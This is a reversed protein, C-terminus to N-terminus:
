FTFSFQVPIVQWGTVAEASQGGAVGAFAVEPMWSVHSVIEFRKGADILYAFHTTQDVDSATFVQIGARGQVFVSNEVDNSFNYTPGVLLTYAHTTDEDQHSINIAIRAGVELHSCLFYDVDGSLGYNYVTEGQTSNAGISLNAGGSIEWMPVTADHHNMMDSEAHALPALALLFLVSVFKM